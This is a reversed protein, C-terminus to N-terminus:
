YTKAKPIAEPDACDRPKSWWATKRKRTAYVDIGWERDETTQLIVECWVDRANQDTAEPSLEVNLSPGDLWDHLAVAEVIAWHGSAMIRDAEREVASDAASGCAAVLTVGALMLGIPRLRM